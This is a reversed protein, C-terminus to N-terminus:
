GTTVHYLTAVSGLYLSVYRYPGLVALVEKGLLPDRTRIEDEAGSSCYPARSTDLDPRNETLSPPPGHAKVNAALM